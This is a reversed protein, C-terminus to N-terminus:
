LLDSFDDEDAIVEFGDDANGKQIAPRKDAAPVVSPKGPAQEIWKQLKNWRGPRQKKMLKEADSPSILTEKFMEKRKMRFQEEMLEQVRAENSWKRHGRKGEVLKWGPVDMGNQLEREVAARAATIMDYLANAFTELLASKQMLAALKEGRVNVIPRGKEDRKLTTEDIKEFGELASNDAFSQLAECVKLEDNVVTAKNLCFRCAKEDPTLPLPPLSPNILRAVIPKARRRVEEAFDRLQDISCIWESIHDLRPQFIVLRVTKIIEWLGHQEVVGLAYLMEQRNKEAFVQVGMGFKLDGVVLEDSDEPPIIVVDSTGGKGGPEGTFLHTPVRQEVIMEGGVAAHITRVADIYKQVERAKEEEVLAGSPLAQGIYQEADTEEELCIAALYHYDRGEVAYPSDPKLLDKTLMVSEQCVMWRDAGSPSLIDHHDAEETESM